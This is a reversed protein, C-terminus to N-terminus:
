GGADARRVGRDAAKLLRDLLLLGATDGQWIFYQVDISQTAEDVLALRWKLAEQNDSLSLLGSQGAKHSVTFRRSVEAILGTEAPPLAYIEPSPPPPYKLTACGGIFLIELILLQALIKKM